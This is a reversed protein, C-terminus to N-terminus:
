WIYIPELQCEKALSLATLDAVERTIKKANLLSKLMQMMIYFDNSIITQVENEQTM